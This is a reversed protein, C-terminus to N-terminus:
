CPVIYGELLAAVFACRNTSCAIGRMAPQLAAKFVPGLHLCLVRSQGRHVHQM